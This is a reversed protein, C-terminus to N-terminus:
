STLCAEELAPMLAIARAFARGAYNVRDISSRDVWHHLAACVPDYEHPAVLDPISRSRDREFDNEIALNLGRTAPAPQFTELSEAFANRLCRQLSVFPGEYGMGM